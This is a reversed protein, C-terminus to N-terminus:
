RAGAGHCKKYKKGSGCACPENPRQRPSAVVPRAAAGRIFGRRASGGSEILDHLITVEDEPVNNTLRLGVLEATALFRELGGRLTIAQLEVSSVNVVVQDGVVGGAWLAELVLPEPSQDAFEFLSRALFAAFYERHPLSAAVKPFRQLAMVFYRSAALADQDTNLSSHHQALSCAAEFEEPGVEVARTWAAVAEDQLEFRECFNGLRRWAEPNPPQRAALERLHALAETPRRHLTGDWLRAAGLIVRSEEGAQARENEERLTRWAAATLQYRDAAGCSPCTFIRGPSVGDWDADEPEPHMLVWPTALPTTVGCGTCRVELVLPGRGGEVMDEPNVTTEM